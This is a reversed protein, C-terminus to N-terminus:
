SRKNDLFEKLDGLADYVKRTLHLEQIAEPEDRAVCRSLYSIRGEVFAKWLEHHQDVIRM